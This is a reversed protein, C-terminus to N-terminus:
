AKSSPRALSRRFREKAFSGFGEIGNVRVQDIAFCVKHNIIDHKDGCSIFGDYVWVLDTYIISSGRVKVCVATPAM